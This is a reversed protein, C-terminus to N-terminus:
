LFYLDFLTSIIFVLTLTHLTLFFLLKLHGRHCSFISISLEWFRQLCSPFIVINELLLKNQMRLIFSIYPKRQFCCSCKCFNRWNGFDGDEVWTTSVLCSGLCSGLGSADHLLEEGERFAEGDVREGDGLEDVNVTCWKGLKFSFAEEGFPMLSSLDSFSGLAPTDEESLGFSVSLLFTSSISNVDVVVVPSPCDRRSFNNCCWKFATSFLLFSDDVFTQFYKTNSQKGKKKKWGFFNLYLSPHLVLLM